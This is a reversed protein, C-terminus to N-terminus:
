DLPLRSLVVLFPRREPAPTEVVPIRLWEDVAAGPRWPADLRRASIADMGMAAVALALTGGEGRLGRGVVCRDGDRLLALLRARREGFPLAELSAGGARVVDSAVFAGSGRAAGPEHLRERLLPADPRGAEDLALLTGELAADDEALLRGVDALEPFALTADALHATEVRVRGATVRVYAHAGPWWPEFFWGDDDFPADAAGPSREALRRPSGDGADTGAELPLAIQGPGPLARGRRM